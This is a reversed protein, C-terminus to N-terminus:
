ARSARLWARAEAGLDILGALARPFLGGRRLIPLAFPRGGARAEAPPGFEARACERRRRPSSPLSLRRREGGAAARYLAAQREAVAEWSRGRALELGAHVLRRYEESDSLVREIAAGLATVDGTEVLVGADGAVEPIAGSLYGAVVSGCAQAEVITRGFQEVWTATPHSPVLVVQAARFTAAVDEPSRWSRLELRDGVGLRAALARLPGEEPGAGTVVLRAPRRANIRALVSVADLAGKEPVLRGAFTLVVEDAEPSQEGPRFLEPDYGLPLVDIRGAFGKGRIVSAAQRTCPYFAAAREYARREHGAFPPPFRKDINQASYMVVPLREPAARLWQHAAASFPEEHLDLVDPAIARILRDCGQPGAYVHRNIDGARTVDLEVIELRDESVREQAEADPWSRPVVLTMEVGASILERERARQAQARGGHYVRLVRVRM